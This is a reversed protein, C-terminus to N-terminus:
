CLLVKGSRFTGIISLVTSGHDLELTYCYEEVSLSTLNLVVSENHIALASNFLFSCNDPYPGYTISCMGNDVQQYSSLLSCTVRSQSVDISIDAIAGFNTPVTINLLSYSCHNNNKFAFMGLSTFAISNGSGVVNSAVVSINLLETATIHSVNIRQSCRNNGVNCVTGSFDQSGILVTYNITSSRGGGIDVEDQMCLDLLVRENCISFM